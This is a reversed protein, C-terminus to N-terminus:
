EDDPPSDARRRRDTARRLVAREGRTLSDMGSRAIKELIRDLDRGEAEARAQERAREAAARADEEDEEPAAPAPMWGGAERLADGTQLRRLALAAHAFCGMAVALMTGLDMVLAGVAIAIAGGLTLMTAARPADAAGRSRVFWATAVGGLDLPVLPLLNLLALQVNTRHVIWLVEVWTPHPNRLWADSLPNPFAAGEWEGTVVGLPTALAAFLVASTCPGALAAALTPRWRPVPEVGDLAGLPWLTVDEALGGSSRVVAARVLERVVVLALLSVLAIGAVAPAAPTSGGPDPSGPGLASRLLVVAAYALFIWHLRFRADRVRLFTV